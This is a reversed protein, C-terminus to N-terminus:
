ETRYGSGMLERSNNEVRQSGNESMWERHDAGQDRDGPRKAFRAEARQERLERGEKRQRKGRDGVNRIFNIHAHLYM